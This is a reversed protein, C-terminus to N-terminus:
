FEPDCITGGCAGLSDGHLLHDFMAAISVSMDKEAATGPKHCIDIKVGAHAAGLFTLSLATAVLAVLILRKMSRQM